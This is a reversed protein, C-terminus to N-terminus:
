RSPCTAPSASPATWSRATRRSAAGGTLSAAHKDSRRHCPARHRAAGGEYELAANQLINLGMVHTETHTAANTSNTPPTPRHTPQTHQDTQQDAPRCPSASPSMNPQSPQDSQHKTATSTPPRYRAAGTLLVACYQFMIPDNCRRKEPNHVAQPDCRYVCLSM